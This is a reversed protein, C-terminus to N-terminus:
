ASAWLCAAVWLLIMITALTYDLWSNGENPKTTLYGSWHYCVLIFAVGVAAIILGAM